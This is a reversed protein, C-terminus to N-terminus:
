LLVGSWQGFRAFTLVMYAAFGSGRFSKLCATTQWKIASVVRSNAVLHSRLFM